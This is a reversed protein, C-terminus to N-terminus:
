LQIFVGMKGTIYTPLSHVTEGTHNVTYNICGSFYSIVICLSCSHNFTVTRKVEEYQAGIPLMTVGSPPTWAVCVNFGSWSWHSWWGYLMNGPPHGFCQYFYTHVCLMGFPLGQVCINVQLLKRAWGWVPVGGWRVVGYVAHVHLLCVYLVWGHTLCVTERQM